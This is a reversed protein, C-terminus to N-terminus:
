PLILKAAQALQASTGRVAIVRPATCTFIRPVKTETRVRTAIEQLAQPTGAQPVHFLGIVDDGGGPISYEATGTFPQDLRAVLWEAMSVQGATSRVTLSPQTSYTFLRRIGTLSRVVTALENLDQGANTNKLYFMKVVNEGHDPDLQTVFAPRSPEAPARLDIGAMLWDALTGQAATGRFMITHRDADVQLVKLDTMIRVITAAQNLSQAQTVRNFHFVRELDDQAFALSVLLAPLLNRVM